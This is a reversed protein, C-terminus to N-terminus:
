CTKAQYIKSTSNYCPLGAAGEVNSPGALNFFILSLHLHFMRLFPRPQPSNANTASTLLINLGNKTTTAGVSDAM